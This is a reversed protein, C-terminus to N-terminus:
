KTEVQYAVVKNRFFTPVFLLNYKSSYTIDASNTKTEKTDLVKWKEGKENVFYVEGNWNSYFYNGKGDSTIGDTSPVETVVIAEAKTKQNVRKTVGKNMSAVLINEKEAFLGNPKDLEPGEQWVTFIGKSYKYIKNGRSDSAFVDGKDTSTVDNLFIAGPVDHKKIIKGAVIDVEVLQSLDGIFLTNGVLALGKPDNLGTVWDLKQITGNHQLKSLFGDGDKSKDNIKNINSVYFIDRQADYLVSEPTKLVTDTEWELKLKIPADQAHIAFSSLALALTIMCYKPTTIM